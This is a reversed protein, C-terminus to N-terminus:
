IPNLKIERRHLTSWHTSQAFNDQQFVSICFILTVTMGSACRAM